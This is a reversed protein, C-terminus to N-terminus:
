EFNARGPKSYYTTRWEINFVRNPATGTVSTYIGTGGGANTRLDDWHAMIANNFLPTPLCTNNWEVSDTLFQLVGKSSVYASTFPQNYFLYPFPLNIFTVCDGCHNGIDFTGPEIDGTTQSYIYASNPGCPTITPTRTYTATPTVTPTCSPSCPTHTPTPTNCTLGSVTLVYLP